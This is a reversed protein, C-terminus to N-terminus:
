KDAPPRSSALEAGLAFRELEPRPVRVERDVRIVGIRGTRIFRYMTSRAVGALGAAQDVTLLLPPEPGSTAASGLRGPENALVTRRRHRAFARLRSVQHRPRAHICRWSRQKAGVTPLSCPDAVGVDGSPWRRATRNGSGAPSHATPGTSPWPQPSRREGHRIFPAVGLLESSRPLRAVLSLLARRNLPYGVPALSAPLPSGAQMASM